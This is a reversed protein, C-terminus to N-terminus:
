KKARSLKITQISMWVMAACSFISAIMTFAAVCVPVISGIFGM